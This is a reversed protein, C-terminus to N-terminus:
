ITRKSILKLLVVGLAIGAVLAVFAAITATARPVSQSLLDKLQTNENTLEANANALREKEKELSNKLEQLSEVRQALDDRESLLARLQAELEVNTQRLNEAIKELTEVRRNLETLSKELEPLKLTRSVLVLVRGSVMLNVLVNKDAPSATSLDKEVGKLLEITVNDSVKTFLDNVFGRFVYIADNVFSEMLKNLEQHASNALKYANEYEKRGYLEVARKLTEAINRLQYPYQPNLTLNLYGMLNSLLLITANLENLSKSATDIKVRSLLEYDVPSPPPPTPPPPQPAGPARLTFSAYGKDDTGSVAVVINYAGTPWNSGTGFSFSCTGGGCEVQGFDRRTQMPDRLEWLLVVNHAPSVTVSVTVREGPAYEQKDTSVSLTYPPSALAIFMLLPMM